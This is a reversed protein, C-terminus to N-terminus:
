PGQPRAAGPPPKPEWWKADMGCQDPDHSLRLERANYKHKLGDVPHVFNNRPEVCVAQGDQARIGGYHKCHICLKM